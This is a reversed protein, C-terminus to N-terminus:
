HHFGLPLETMAPEPLDLTPKVTQDYWNQSSTQPDRKEHSNKCLSKLSFGTTRRSEICARARNLSWQENNM